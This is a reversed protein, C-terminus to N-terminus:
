KTSFGNSHPYTPITTGSSNAINPSTRWNCLPVKELAQRVADPCGRSTPYDWSPAARLTTATPNATSPNALWVSSGCPVALWLLEKEWPSSLARDGKCSDSFSHRNQSLCADSLMLVPPLVIFLPTFVNHSLM